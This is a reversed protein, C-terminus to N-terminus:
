ACLAGVESSTLLKVRGCKLVQLELAPMAVPCRGALRQSRELHDGHDVQRASSLGFPMLMVTRPRSARRCRSAACHAVQRGSAPELRAPAFQHDPLRTALRNGSACIPLFIRKPRPSHSITPMMSAPAARLVALDPAVEVLDAGVELADFHEAGRMTCAVSATAALARILSMLLSWRSFMFACTRFPISRAASRGPPASEFEDADEDRMMM